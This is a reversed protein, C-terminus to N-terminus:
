VWAPQLDTDPLSQLFALVDGPVEVRYWRRGYEGGQPNLGAADLEALAWHYHSTAGEKRWDRGQAELARLHAMQAPTGAQMDNLHWMDWVARFQTELAPTWNPAYEEIQWEHMVIQGCSGRADGNRKPGEVGTISLRGDCFRAKCFVSGDPGKGIRVIKEFDTM